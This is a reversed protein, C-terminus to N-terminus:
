AHEAEWDPRVVALVLEDCRIGNMLWAGRAIGEARFGVAEYARRARVNDPLVGISLRYVDTERFAADVVRRMMAKGYGAGAHAVAVRFVLTVQNSSAWDRLIAFGVPQDGSRGIFYAYRADALAAAHQDADWRGVLEGYGEGRETAMIFSIDSATAHRLEFDSHTRTEM